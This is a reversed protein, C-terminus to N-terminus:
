PTITYIWDFANTGVPKGGLTIHAGAYAGTGAIVADPPVPAGKLSFLGEAWISGNGFVSEVGPCNYLQQQVDVLFCTGDIHGVIKGTKLNKLPDNWAMFDGQSPGKKGVDINETANTFLERVQITRQSAAGGSVAALAGIVIAAVAALGAATAIKGKAKM